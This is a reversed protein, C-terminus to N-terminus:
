EVLRHKTGFLYDAFVGVGYNCNFYKHHNDHFSAIPSFGSHGIFITNMTSIIIWLTLTTSDSSLIIPPLYISLINSYFDVLTLYTATLGVPATIEHHKKHFRVYFLDTHLLRHTVYYFFDMLIYSMILDFITKTLSFNFGYWNILPPLTIVAPLNYLFTNKLAVPLCKKYTEIIIENPKPQLKQDYFIKNTDILYLIFNFFYFVVNFLFYYFLGDMFYNIM